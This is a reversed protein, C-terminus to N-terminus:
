ENNQGTEIAKAIANGVNEENYYAQATDFLRYGCDIANLVCEETEKEDLEFVCFGVLTMKIGNNLTLYEM